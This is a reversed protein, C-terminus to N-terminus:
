LDHVGCVWKKGRRNEMCSRAGDKRPKISLDARATVHAKEDRQKVRNGCDAKAKGDVKAGVDVRVWHLNTQEDDRKSHWAKGAMKENRENTKSQLEIRHGLTRSEHLKDDDSSDRQDDVQGEVNERLEDSVHSKLEDVNDSKEEDHM